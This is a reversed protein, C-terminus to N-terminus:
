LYYISKGINHVLVEKNQEINGLAQKIKDAAPNNSFYDKLFYIIFIIIIVITYIYIYIYHTTSIELM